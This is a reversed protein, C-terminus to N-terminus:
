FVTRLMDIWGMLAKGHPGVVLERFQEFNIGTDALGGEFIEDVVKEMEEFTRTRVAIAADYQQQYDISANSDMDEQHRFTDSESVDQRPLINTPVEDGHVEPDDPRVFELSSPPPYYFTASLPYSSDARHRLRNTLTNLSAYSVARTADDQENEFHEEDSRITTDIIRCSISWLAQFIATVDKRMIVGDHDSDYGEFVVTTLMQRVRPTCRLKRKPDKKLVHIGVVFEQFGILGNKDTDYVEFMKDFIVNSGVELYAVCESYAARDIAAGLKMPDNKFEVSALCRFQEYLAELAAQDDLM